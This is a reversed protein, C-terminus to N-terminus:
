TAATFFFINRWLSRRSHRVTTNIEQIDSRISMLLGSLEFLNGKLITWHDRLLSKFCNEKPYINTWSHSPHASSWRRIKIVCSVFFFKHYLKWLSGIHMCTIRRKIYTNVSLFLKFFGFLYDSDTFQLVSLLSALHFLVFLSRCFM